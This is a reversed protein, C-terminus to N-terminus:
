VLVNQVAFSFMLLIFLCGVSHSFMNVLIGSLPNIYFNIFFKCFEVGFFCVVWNFCSCLVQIPMEGFLVSMCIALLYTFLQEIDSILSICILVVILYWRVGTLIAIVLLDIFLLHQHPYPSLPVKKGQQHSHLNTYVSHFATHLYRLFHFPIQRKLRHDWNQSVDLPTWFM